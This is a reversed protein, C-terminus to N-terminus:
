NVATNQQLPPFIKYNRSYSSLSFKHSKKLVGGTLYKTSLFQAIVFYIIAAALMVTVNTYAGLFKLMEGAPKLIAPTLMVGLYVAIIVNFAFAWVPFLKKGYGWFGFLVAVILSIIISIM